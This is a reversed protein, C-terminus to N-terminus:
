EWYALVICSPENDPWRSPAMGKVCGILWPDKIVAPHRRYEPSVVSFEGFLGSAQAEAYRVLAADPIRSQYQKINEWRTTRETRSGNVIGYGLMVASASVVSFMWFAMSADREAEYAARVPEPANRWTKKGHYTQGSEKVMEALIADRAQWGTYLEPSGLGLVLSGALMLMLGALVGGNWWEGRRPMRAVIQRHIEQRSMLLGFRAAAESANAFGLQAPLLARVAKALRTTEETNLRTVHVDELVTAPQAVEAKVLTNM